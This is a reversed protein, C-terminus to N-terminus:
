YHTVTVAYTVPATQNGVDFVTVCYSGSNITGSLQATTGAPTAVSGNSLLPCTSGSPTGVGLGMYITPPPGAATLTVNLQGSSTVNFPHVDNGGVAVTGTFNETILTPTPQVFNPTSNSDGCAAGALVCVVLASLTLKMTTLGDYPFRQYV